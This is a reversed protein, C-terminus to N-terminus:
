HMKTKNNLTRKEKLYYAISVMFSPLALAASILGIGFVSKELITEKITVGILAEILVAIILMVTSIIATKNYLKKSKTYKGLYTEKDTYIHMTNPSAAFFHVPGFSCMHEWGSNEFIEFYENKNEDLEKYDMEYILEKPEAKILKYRFLTMKKLIWGEQAMQSLKKMARNEDFALGMNMIYKYKKEM